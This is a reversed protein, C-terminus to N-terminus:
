GLIEKNQKHKKILLAQIGWRNGYCPIVNICKYSNIRPFFWHTPCMPSVRPYLLVWFMQFKYFASNRIGKHTCYSVGLCSPHLMNPFSNHELWMNERLMILISSLSPVRWELTELITDVQLLHM